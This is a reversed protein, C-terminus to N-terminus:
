CKRQTSDGLISKLHTWRKWNRWTQSWLTQLACGLLFGPLVQRISATAVPRWCFHHSIRGDSWITNSTRQDANRVAKWVTNEWWTFFSFTECIATGSWLVYAWWENDLGSQLLVASTGEKVRRVVGQLGMHKQDTDHQRVIIGPYNRM